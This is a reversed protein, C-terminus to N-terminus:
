ASVTCTSSSLDCWYEYTSPLDLGDWAMCDSDGEDATSKSWRDGSFQDPSDGTSFVVFFAPQIVGSEFYFTIYEYDCITPSLALQWKCGSVWDLVFSGNMDECESCDETNSVGSITVTIPDPTNDDCRVCDAETGEDECCCPYWGLALLLIWWAVLWSELM